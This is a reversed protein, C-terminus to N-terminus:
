ADAKHAPEFTRLQERLEKQADRVIDRAEKMGAILDDSYREFEKARQGVYWGIGFWAILACVLVALLIYEIFDEPM